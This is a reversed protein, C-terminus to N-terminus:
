PGPPLPLANAPLWHTAEGDPDSLWDGHQLVWAAPPYHGNIYREWQWCSGLANCDEARPLRESVAVPVSAPERGDLVAPGDAEALLARAAEWGTEFGYELDGSWRTPVPPAAPHGWRALVARSPPTPPQVPDPM